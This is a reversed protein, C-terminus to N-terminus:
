WTSGDELSVKDQTLMLCDISFCKKLIMAKTQIDEHKDVKLYISTGKSEGNSKILTFIENSIRSNVKCARLKFWGM